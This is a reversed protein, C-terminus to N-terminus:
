IIKLAFIRRSAYRQIAVRHLSLICLNVREFVSFIHVFDSYSGTYFFTYFVHLFRTFFKCFFTYFFKYFVHLFCTFFTKFFTYLFTYFVHLFSTIVCIAEQFREFVCAFVHLFASIRTFRRFDGILVRCFDVFFRTQLM